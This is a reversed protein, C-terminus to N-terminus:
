YYLFSSSKFFSVRLLALAKELNDIATPIDDYTLASVTWKCHKQIQTSVAPDLVMAPAAPVYPSHAAPQQQYPASPSKYGGFPQQPQPTYPNSVPAPAPAPTPAPPQYPSYQSAPPTPSVPLTPQINNINTNSYNSAPFQPQQPQQHVPPSGAPNHNYPIQGQNLNPSVGSQTWNNNMGGGDISGNFGTNNNYNSINNDNNNTSASHGLPPSPFNSITPFAPAGGQAPQQPPQQQQQVPSQSNVPFTSSTAPSFVHASAATNDFGTLSPDILDQDTKNNNAGPPPAPQRGDRIAKVIDAARWKAYKIKEEVESDIDGFVKLLELFNAAAV